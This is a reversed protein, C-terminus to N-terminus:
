EITKNESNVEKKKIFENFCEVFLDFEEQDSMSFFEIISAWNQSTHISFRNAVYENFGDLCHDNVQENQFLYGGIFAYLRQVSLKGIYIQPREIIALIVEKLSNM